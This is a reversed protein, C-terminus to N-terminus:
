ESPLEIIRSPVDRLRVAMDSNVITIHWRRPVICIKETGFTNKLIQLYEHFADNMMIANFEDDPVSLVLADRERIEIKSIRVLIPEEYVKEVSVEGVKEIVRVPLRDDKEADYM